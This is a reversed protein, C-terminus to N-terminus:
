VHKHEIRAGHAVAIEEIHRATDAHHVQLTVLVRGKKLEDTLRELRPDPNGAGTLGGSIAGLFSGAGGGLVAGALPGAAILGAPGGIISGAAAGLILGLLAGRRVGPGGDSEGQSAMFAPDFGQEHVFVAIDDMQVLDEHRIAELAADARAHDAFLAFVAYRM